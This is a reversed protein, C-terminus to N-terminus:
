SALIASHMKMTGDKPEGGRDGNSIFACASSCREPANCAPWVSDLENSVISVTERCGVFERPPNCWFHHRFLKIARPYVPEGDSPGRVDLSQAVSSNELLNCM